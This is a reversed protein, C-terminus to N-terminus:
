QGPSSDSRVRFTYGKLARLSSILGLNALISCPNHTSKAAGPPSPFFASEQHSPLSTNIGVMCPASAAPYLRTCMGLELPGLDRSGSRGCTRAKWQGRALAAQLPAPSPLSLLLLKLASPASGHKHAHCLASALLPRLKLAHNRPPEPAPSQAPSLAPGPAGSCEVRGARHEMLQKCRGGLAPKGRSLRRTGDERPRQPERARM